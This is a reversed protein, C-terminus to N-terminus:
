WGQSLCLGFLLLYHLVAALWCSLTDTALSLLKSLLHKSLLFSSVDQQKEPMLDQNVNGEM